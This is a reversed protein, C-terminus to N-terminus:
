FGDYGPPHHITADGPLPRTSDEFLTQAMSEYTLQSIVFQNDANDFEMNIKEFWNNLVVWAIFLSILVVPAAVVLSMILWSQGGKDLAAGIIVLFSISLLVGGGLIIGRCFSRAANLTKRNSKYASQERLAKVYTPSILLKSKMTGVRGVGRRISSPKRLSHNISATTKGALTYKLLGNIVMHTYNVNHRPITVSFVKNVEKPGCFVGGRVQNAACTLISPM